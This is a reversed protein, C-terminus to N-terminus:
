REVILNSSNPKIESTSLTSANNDLLNEVAFSLAPKKQPTQSNNMITTPNGNTAVRSSWLRVCINELKNTTAPRILSSVGFQHTKAMKTVFSLAYFRVQPFPHVLRAFEGRNM